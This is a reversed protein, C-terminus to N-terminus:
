SAVCVFRSAPSKSVPSSPRKNYKSLLAPACCDCLTSGRNIQQFWADIESEAFSAFVSQVQERTLGSVMFALLAEPLLLDGFDRPTIGLDACRRRTDAILRMAEGLISNSLDRGQAIM